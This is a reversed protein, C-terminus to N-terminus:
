VSSRNTFRGETHVKGELNWAETGYKEAVLREAEEREVPTLGADSFTVGLREEFGLRVMEAMEDFSVPRGLLEAMSTTREELEAILTERQAEFGEPLLFPLRKHGPGLLLSGHQLVMGATRRQASGVLKRGDVIIEFRSASSFCIGATGSRSSSLPPRALDGDVGLRRLGNVLAESAIRYTEYPSTGIAPHSEPVILSYTLEEDHLVVRGGTPRRVVSLGSLRCLRLDIEHEVQQAYGFSVAPPRWAYVRVTPPAETRRCARMVAEDIAMNLAAEAAGTNLFRWM